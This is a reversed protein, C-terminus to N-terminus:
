LGISNLFDDLNINENNHFKNFDAIIMKLYQSNEKNLQNQLTARLQQTKCHKYLLRYLSIKVLNSDETKLKKFYFQRLEKQNFNQTLSLNQLIHYVSWEYNSINSNLMEIMKTKLEKSNSYNMLTYGLKDARWFFKEYFFLWYKLLFSNATIDYKLLKLERLAVGYATSLRIADIDDVSDLLKLPESTKNVFLSPLEKEVDIIQSKWFAIIEKPKSLTTIHGLENSNDQQSLKALNKHIKNSKNPSDKTEVSIIFDDDESNYSNFFRKRKLKTITEDEEGEKIEKIITKKSNISLGNSKTYKDIILLANNLENEEFSFITIDDMYRLYFYGSDILIEDLQHLLLNALLFSPPPGQPIGVGPTPGVKTGSWLNLCNGLIDLIEDEVDFQSSLTLLLNYHPISDFFGTIDTEFKYKVKDVEIAQIISDSYKEHLSQWFKFFFFNSKEDKLIDTGKKVEQNLVSGYVFQSNQNLRDYNNQSIVNAIAQFVIADEVVLVTKTRLTKSPKPVYFKFGRQPKYSESIIKNSLNKCNIELNSNFAYIGGLDKTMKDPWCKVRQFALQIALPNFYKELINNM